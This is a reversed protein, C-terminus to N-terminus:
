LLAEPDGGLGTESLLKGVNMTVPVAQLGEKVVVSDLDIAVTDLIQDPWNSKISFISEEATVIFASLCPAPDCREDFCGLDVADFGEGIELSGELGDGRAM